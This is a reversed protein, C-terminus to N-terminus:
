LPSNDERMLCHVRPERGKMQTLKYLKDPWIMFPCLKEMRKPCECKSCLWQTKHGWVGCGWPWTSPGLMSTWAAAAPSTAVSVLGYSFSTLQGVSQPGWVELWALLCWISSFYSTWVLGQGFWLNMLLVFTMTILWKAQPWKNHLLLLGPCSQSHCRHTDSRYCLMSSSPTDKRYTSKRWPGLASPGCSPTVWTGRHSSQKLSEM